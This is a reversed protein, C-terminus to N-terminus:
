YNQVFSNEIKLNYDDILIRIKEKISNIENNILEFNNFKQEQVSIIKLLQLNDKQINQINENINNVKFENEEIISNINQILSLLESIKNENFINFENIKENLKNNIILDSEKTMDHFENILLNLKKEKNSLSFIIDQMNNYNNNNIKQELDLIKNNLEMIIKKNENKEKHLSKIEKELTNIKINLQEIMLTYQFDNNKEEEKLHIFEYLCQLMKELSSIRDELNNMRISNNENYKTSNDNKDYNYAYINDKLNKNGKIISKNEYNLDSDKKNLNLTM